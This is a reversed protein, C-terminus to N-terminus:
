NFPHLYMHTHSEQAIGVQPFNERFHNRTVKGQFYINLRRQNKDAIFIQQGSRSEIRLQKTFENLPM